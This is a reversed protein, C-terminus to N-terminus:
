VNLRISRQAGGRTYFFKEISTTRARKVSDLTPCNILFDCFLESDRHSFWDLPQPYYQKLASILRNANSRKDDVLSRRHEVLLSLTRCDDSSHKLPKVKNPYNLMMGLALKADM